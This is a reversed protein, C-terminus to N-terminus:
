EAKFYGWEPHKSLTDAKFKRIKEESNMIDSYGSAEQFHKGRFMDILFKAAFFGCNSTNARQMKVRNIKFKLYGEPNLKKILPKLDTMIQKHPDDGFSDYFCISDKSIYVSQWHFGPKNTPDTNIVFGISHKSLEGESVKSVLSPIQDRAIAGLYRGNRNNASSYPEMIDDIEQDSLGEKNIIKKHESSLAAASEHGMGVKKYDDVLKDWIEMIEPHKNKFLYTIMKQKNGLKKFEDRNLGPQPKTRWVSRKEENMEILQDVTKLNNIRTYLANMRNQEKAEEARKDAEDARKKHEKEREPSGLHEKFARDFDPDDAPVDIMYAKGTKPDKFEHKKQAAIVAKELGKLFPEVPKQGAKARDANESELVIEKQRETLQHPQAVPQHDFDSKPTKRERLAKPKKVKSKPKKKKKDMKDLKRQWKEVSKLLSEEDINKGVIVTKKGILVERIGGPKRKIIVTTRSSMIIYPPSFFIQIRYKKTNVSSCGLEM